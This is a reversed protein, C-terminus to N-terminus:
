IILEMNLTIVGKNKRLIGHELKLTLNKGSMVYRGKIMSFSSITYGHATLYEDLGGLMGAEKDIPLIIVCRFDGYGFQSKARSIIKVALPEDTIERPRFLAMSELTGFADKFGTFKYQSGTDYLEAEGTIRKEITDGVFIRGGLKKMYKLYHYFGIDSYSTQILPVSRNSSLLIHGNQIVKRNVIIKKSLTKKIYSSKKLNHLKKGRAKALSQKRKIKSNKISTKKHQELAIVRITRPYIIKKVVLTKKLDTKAVHQKSHSFTSVVLYLLGFIMIFVLLVFSLIKKM